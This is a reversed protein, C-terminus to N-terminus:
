IASSSAQRDSPCRGPYAAPNSDANYIEPVGILYVVQGNRDPLAAYIRSKECLLSNGAGGGSMINDFRGTRWDFKVIRVQPWGYIREDASAPANSGSNQQSAAAILLLGDLKRWLSKRRSRQSQAGATPVPKSRQGGRRTGVAAIPETYAGIPRLPSVAFFGFFGSCRWLSSYMWGQEIARMPRTVASVRPASAEPM